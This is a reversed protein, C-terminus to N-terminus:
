SGADEPVLHCAISLEDDLTYYPRVTMERDASATVQRPYSLTGRKGPADDLRTALRAHVADGVDLWLDWLAPEWAAFARVDLRAEFETGDLRVDWTVDGERKRAVAVLRAKEGPQPGAYALRGVIRIDGGGPHVAEVEAHPVVEHVELTVRGDPLRVARAARDRPLAAYARLGDHSFGPDDTLLPRAISGAEVLVEWAGPALGAVPLTVSLRDGTLPEARGDGSAGHRLVIRTGDPVPAPWRILLDDDPGVRCHDAVANM